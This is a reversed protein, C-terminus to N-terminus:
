PRLPYAITLASLMALMGVSMLGFLGRLSIVAAAGLMLVLYVSAIGLSLTWHGSRDIGMNLLLSLLLIAFLLMIFVLLAGTGYVIVRRVRKDAEHGAANAPADSM